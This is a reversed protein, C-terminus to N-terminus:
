RPDPVFGYVPDRPFPRPQPKRWAYGDESRYVPVGMALLNSYTDYYITIVQEPMRRRQFDTYRRRNSAAVTAPAWVRRPGASRNAPQQQADPAPSGPAASAADQCVEANNRARNIWISPEDGRQAV